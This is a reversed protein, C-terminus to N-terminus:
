SKFNLIIMLNKLRVIKVVLGIGDGVKIHFIEFLVKISIFVTFDDFSNSSGNWIGGFAEKRIYMFNTLNKM